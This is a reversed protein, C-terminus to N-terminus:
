LLVATTSVGLNDRVVATPLRLLEAHRINDECISTGNRDGSEARESVRAAADDSLPRKRYDTALHRCVAFSSVVLVAHLCGVPFGLLGFSTLSTLRFLAKGLIRYRDIRPELMDGNNITQYSNTWRPVTM